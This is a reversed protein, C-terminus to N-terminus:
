KKLGALSVQFWFIQGAILCLFWYNCVCHRFGFIVISYDFCNMIIKQHIITKKFLWRTEIPKRFISGENERKRMKQHSFDDYIESTIKFYFKDHLM